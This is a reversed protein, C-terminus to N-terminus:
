ATISKEWGAPASAVISSQTARFMGSTMAVVPNDSWVLAYIASALLVIGMTKAGLMDGATLRAMFSVFIAAAANFSM